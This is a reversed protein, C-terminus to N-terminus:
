MADGYGGALVGQEIDKILPPLLSALKDAIEDKGNAIVRININYTKNGGGRGAYDRIRDHSPTAYSKPARARALRTAKDLSKHPLKGIQQPNIGSGVPMGNTAKELTARFKDLAGGAGKAAPALPTDSVQPTPMNDAKYGGKKAGIGEAGKGDVSVEFIKGIGLKQAVMNGWGKLTNIKDGIWNLFRSWLRKLLDVPAAVVKYIHGGLTSFFNGIAQTLPAIWAKFRQWMDAIWQVPASMKEGIWAGLRLFLDGIWAGFQALYGKAWEWIKYWGYVVTAIVAGIAIFKAGFLVVPAIAALTVARLAVLGIKIAQLPHRVTFLAASAARAGIGLTWMAASQAYTAATTAYLRLATIGLVSRLYTFGIMGKYVGATVFSFAYSAVTSAVSFGILAAAGIGILKTAVPFREAFSVVTEAFGGVGQAVTRIPPLLVSGLTIGVRSVANGLLKLENATTKSRNEFEMQMSGALKNKDSVLKLAKEYNHLGGVLMAIDDAYEAGFLDTLVGMQAEKKLHKISQLVLTITKQPDNKIGLKIMAPTLGIQKLGEAFKKGQKDATALKNLLANIATSAVEPPKGMALFADALALAQEKALGFLKASGGIRGMVNIMDAAKAATNDSLHNIADGLSEVESLSLGFINMLKAISSGAEDASMDFATSMKAVTKTFDILKGKAVGLQAGSAAISALGDAAIPIKTSLKLLADGMQKTENKNLNAVKVVDAMASEFDIAQKVPFAVSAGLALTDTLKARAADRKAPARGLGAQASKLRAIKKDISALRKDAKELQDFSAKLRIEKANLIAIQREVYRLQRKLREKKAPDVEAGIRIKLGKQRAIVSELHSRTKKIDDQLKKFLGSARIKKQQADLVKLTSGLTDTQKIVKVIGSLAGGVVAGIVVKLGLEQAM